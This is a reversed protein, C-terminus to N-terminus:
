FVFLKRKRQSWHAQGGPNGGHVGNAFVLFAGHELLPQL